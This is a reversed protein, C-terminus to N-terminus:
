ALLALVAAVSALVVGGSTFLILLDAPAAAATRSLHLRRREGAVLLALAVGVMTVGLWTVVPAGAQLGSRLLLIANGAMALGTRRWALATREPQLGPDRKM